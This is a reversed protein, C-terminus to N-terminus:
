EVSPRYIDIIQANKMQDKCATIYINNLLDNMASLAMHCNMSWSTMWLINYPGFHLQPGYVIKHTVSRNMFQWKARLAM